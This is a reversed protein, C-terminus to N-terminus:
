RRALVAGRYVVAVASAMAGLSREAVTARGRGALLLCTQPDRLLRLLADCLADPSEPEVLLGDVGDRILEPVGGVAAAVVPVGAVQAELVVYPCGEWRSPVAVVDVERMRAVTEDQRCEGEFRVHGTLCLADVRGRLAAGMEGQGFLRFRVRPLRAAIDAAAALLLDPGKQPVLRGFFGVSLEGSERARLPGAEVARVGNRILAVRAPDYGLGVAERAEEESVAVLAATWGRALRELWRYFRRRRGGGTVLFAFAHPTYVVPVGCWAGALRALFGAKSSHAHILDPRVRRVLRILRVANSLDSLPAIGRRMPVAYVPVGRSAYGALEEEGDRPERARSVALACRFEAPDLASVLDRVHRRTGGEWAELVQLVTTM